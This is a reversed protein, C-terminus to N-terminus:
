LQEKCYCYPRLQPLRDAVCHPASGYKNIRSIEKESVLFKDEKVMYKVTAEYHAHGPSTSISVQYYVESLVMDDSLDPLRGDFDASQKFKLLHDNPTHQVASSINDLTLRSCLQRETYTMTNISDVLMSSARKTFDDKVSVPQWNLCACWHAQIGADTCTREAPVEKFLSIGRKHIDGKTAGTFNILDMFTEHVDFPTTLRHANVRFNELANPYKKGFWPPFSFGFYPMREEYKGQVTRRVAQFRAGHDSMLILMTNNLYGQDNMYILFQKLDNDVVSVESYGGHTFESHFVFSFKPQDPYMKYLDKIWNLMNLHRPVSGLCHPRHQAYQKEAQIDFPRFYHDVPQQKFGSMRYTFTGISAGDEGWQTAYGINQLDKWVWPHNDVPSAGAHGRRAEPLESETKGTLIPLLAQPTGDGVINYGELVIAGLNNVFYEHSKPLNRMWTMRSISDFGFMLVNLGLSNKNLSNKKPRDHIDKKYAIGSHINKYVHGDQSSCRATFFDTPLPTGDKIDLKAEGEAVAFDNNGRIYPILDCTVKGHNRISDESIKFTGNNVYVWNEQDSCRLPPVDVFYQKLEPHWLELHPHVCAQGKTMQYKSGDQNILGMIGSRIHKNEHIITERVYLGIFYLFMLFTSLFSLVIIRQVSRRCGRTFKMM